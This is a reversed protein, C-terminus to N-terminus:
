RLHRRLVRIRSDVDEWEVYAGQLHRRGGGAEFARRGHLIRRNDVVAIEGPRMRTEIRLMPDRTLRLFCRYARQFARFESLACDGTTMVSPNFRIERVEGDASLGILPAAMQYDCDQDQNRFIVPTRALLDFAGPDDVRLKEALRLGDCYLSNGGSTQNSLCHLFQLGPQYERVPLDVHLPLEVATYANSTADPLAVVDFVGGFNTQRVNAIRRVLDGVTGPATPAGEIYTLGTQRITELWHLLVEDRSMVETFDFRPLCAALEAGWPRRQIPELPPRGGHRLWGAEYLSAHGNDAWTIFLTRGDQITVQLPIIDLRYGEQDLIRELSAPHRCHTCACQERLWLAHLTQRWGDSWDLHLLQPDVGDILADLLHHETDYQYLDGMPPPTPSIDRAAVNEPPVESLAM